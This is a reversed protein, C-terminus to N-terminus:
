QLNMLNKYNSKFDRTNQAYMFINDKNEIYSTVPGRNKTKSSDDYFDHWEFNSVDKYDCLLKSPNAM